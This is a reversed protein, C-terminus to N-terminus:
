VKLRNALPTLLRTLWAHRSLFNQLRIALRFLLREKEKLLAARSLSLEDHSQSLTNYKNMWELIAQHKKECEEELLRIMGEATEKEKRILHHEDEYARLSQEAALQEGAQLSPVTLRRLHRRTRYLPTIDLPDALDYSVSRIPPIREQRSLWLLTTLMREMLYPRFTIDEYPSSISPTAIRRREEETSEHEIYHFVPECFAMYRDWFDGTAAFYNCFAYEESPNLMASLDIGLHPHVKDFISQTIRSLGPHWCDGHQWINPLSTHQGQFPNVIYVDQGPNAEIFQLFQEGRLGTKEGFKWSVYGTIGASPLASKEHESRFVHYECWEPRLNALNDYPLFAPDLAPRQQELYYIQFIRINSM